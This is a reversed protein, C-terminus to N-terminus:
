FEKKKMIAMSIKISIGLVILTLISATIGMMGMHVSPLNDQLHLLHIGFLTKAGKLIVLVLIGLGGITGLM